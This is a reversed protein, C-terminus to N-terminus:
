CVLQVDMIELQFAYVTYGFYSVVGSDTLFLIKMTSFLEIIYAHVTFQVIWNSLKPFLLENFFNLISVINHKFYM